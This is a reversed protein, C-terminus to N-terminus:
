AARAAAEEFLAAAERMDAPRAAADASTARLIADKLPGEALRAEIDAGGWKDHPATRTALMFALRGLSWVDSRTTATLTARVEPSTYGRNGIKHSLKTVEGTREVCMGLDIAVLRGDSARRMFNQPGLDLVLFGAEHVDHLLRALEAALRAVSAPPESLRSLDTGDVYERV